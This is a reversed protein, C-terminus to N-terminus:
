LGSFKLLKDEGIMIEEILDCQGLTVNDPSDFTSVIEGGLICRMPIHLVAFRKYDPVAATAVM